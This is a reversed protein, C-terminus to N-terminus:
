RAQAAAKRWWTAALVDSKQLGGRGTEYLNGLSSQATMEGQESGGQVVM